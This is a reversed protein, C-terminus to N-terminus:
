GISATIETLVRKRGFDTSTFVVAASMGLTDMALDILDFTRGEVFIQHIEDMLGFLVVCLFPLLYVLVKRSFRKLKEKKSWLEFIRITCVGLIFYEIVHAIKDMYPNQIDPLKVAPQSSLTFIIILSAIWPYYYFVIRYITNDTDSRIM